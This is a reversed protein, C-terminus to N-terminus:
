PQSEIIRTQRYSIEVQGGTSIESESLRVFAVKIGDFRSLKGVPIPKSKGVKQKNKRQLCANFYKKM